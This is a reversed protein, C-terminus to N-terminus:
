DNIAVEEISVSKTRVMDRGSGNRRHCDRALVELGKIVISYFSAQLTESVVPEREDDGEHVGFAEAGGLCAKTIEAYRGKFCTSEWPLGESEQSLLRERIGRIEHRDVEDPNSYGLIRHIPAWHAIEVLVIGLSYIDWERRYNSAVVNANPHRYFETKPHFPPKETLMAHMAPRSYDFGSLFPSGLDVLGSEKRFFVTAHSSLGKHLWSGAHLYLLCRSLEYALALRKPEDPLDVEDYLQYLSVPEASAPFQPIEFILGLGHKDRFYGTCTPARFERPKDRDSLLAALERIRPLTANDPRDLESPHCEKWEIWVPKVFQNATRFLTIKRMPPYELSERSKSLPLNPPPDLQAKNVELQQLNRHSITSINIAKFRAFLGLAQRSTLGPRTSNSLKVKAPIPWGTAILDIPQSVLEPFVAKVLSVLQETTDCLELLSLNTEEDKERLALTSEQNLVGRRFDDNKESLHITLV